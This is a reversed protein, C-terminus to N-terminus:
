WCNNTDFQNGGDDLFPIWQLSSDIPSNNFNCITGINQNFVTSGISMTCYSNLYLVGENSISQNNNFLSKSISVNIIALPSSSDVCNLLDSNIASGNNQSQNSNFETSDIELTAFSKGEWQIAGGAGLNLAGGANNSNFSSNLIKTRFTNKFFLAGGKGSSATNSEFRTNSILNEGFLSAFYIAGANRNSFNTQFNSESIITKYYTKDIYISGGGGFLNGSILTNHHFSSSEIILQQGSVYLAAGGLAGTELRCDSVEVNILRYSVFDKIELDTEELLKNDSLSICAGNIKLNKEWNPIGQDQSSLAHTVFGGTIKIGKIEFDDTLANIVQTLGEGDLITKTPGEGWLELRNKFELPYHGLKFHGSPLHIRSKVQNFNSQEVAARLSCQGKETLCLKDNLDKDADSESTNVYYSNGVGLLFRILETNESNIISYEWYGNTIELAKGYIKLEIPDFYLGKPLPRNLKLDSSPQIGLIPNSTSEIDLIFDIKQLKGDYIGGNGYFPQSAVKSSEDTSKFGSPQILCNQFLLLLIVAYGLTLIKQKKFEM